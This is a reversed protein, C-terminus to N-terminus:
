EDTANWVLALSIAPGGHGIDCELWEPRVQYKLQDAEKPYSKDVFRDYIFGLYGVRAQFGVHPSLNFKFACWGQFPFLLGAGVTRIKADGANAGLSDDYVGAPRMWKLSGLTAGIGFTGGLEVSAVERRLDQRLAIGIHTVPAVDIAGLDLWGVSVYQHLHKLFGTPRNREWMLSIGLLAQTGSSAAHTSTGTSLSLYDPNPKQDLRIRGAEAFVFGIIRPRFGATYGPRIDESGHVRRTRIEYVTNIQKSSVVEVVAVRKGEFNFIYLRDRWGPDSEAELVVENGEVYTVKVPSPGAAAQECLLFVLFTLSAAPLYGRMSNM